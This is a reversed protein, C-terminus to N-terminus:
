IWICLLVVLRAYIWMLLVSRHGSNITRSYQGVFTSSTNEQGVYLTKHILAIQATSLPSGCNTSLVKAYSRTDHRKCFEFARDSLQRMSQETLALLADLLM